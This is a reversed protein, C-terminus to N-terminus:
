TSVETEIRRQSGVAPRISHLDLQEEPIAELELVLDAAREVAKHRDADRMLDQVLAAITPKEFIDRLSLDWHLLDRIKGVLQLALLSHGGLDSFFNDHMDVGATGLVSEWLRTLVNGMPGSAPESVPVDRDSPSPDPLANRDIKGNPTSPLTDLCIVAAPVMYEPLKSNLCSRLREAVANPEQHKFADRLVVYAILRRGADGRDRAIVVANQVEPQQRLVTEIEGPEIRFGRIKLQQDARGLFVLNGDPLYRVLDGTRFMRGGSASHFPDSLFRQATLEPQNIYGLGVCDGGIYLEGRVGIPVPQRHRDLVYLRANAIPRGIPVPGTREQNTLVKYVCCGVVTETPGYENVLMTQPTASQWLQVQEGLLQEGGIVVVHTRGKLEEPALQSALIELHAPTLKILSCNESNKLFESLAVAGQPASLLHVSGGVLLPTFLATITLDFSISSHVPAGHGNAVEYAQAAWHLYNVLAQHHISIGTPNGTSGSTYMVYAPSRPDCPRESPSESKDSNNHPSDIGDLLVQTAPIAGLKHSYQSTTLILRAGSDTVMFALRDKPYDPDLPLYAAGAKLIGLLAVLLQESRELCVAVIDGTRLGRERLRAAWLDSGIALERYTMRREGCTVAIADPSAQAQEEFLEHLCSNRPYDAATRNWDFLIQRRERESMIALESLPRDPNAMASELLCRFHRFMREITAQEFLDTSYDAYGHINNEPGEFLEIALDFSSAGRRVFRSPGHVGISKLDRQSYTYLQLTTQILPQRSLDRPPQLEQVLKEFPVEQHAYAAVSALRVRRLFERFTPDGSLDGRMVVMNVFLGILNELEPLERGSVPVGVVIDEQGSYRSLLAQYGALLVIFTTCEERKAFRRLEQALVSPIEVPISSGRHTQVPPRPWDTPLELLTVRELQRRWFSVQKELYPGELRQRQWVAYDAYQVRLEPLPSPRGTGLATYLTGLENGFVSMSWGDSITHHMTVLFVHEAPGLRVLQCRFLPGGALDFARGAEEDTLQALKAAREGGSLMSLDIPSVRIAQPPAVVQVPSGDRIAFTSRLTEHRRAIETLARELVSINLAGDFRHAFPLNYASSGPLLQDLYWLRQQAFSLSFICNGEPM